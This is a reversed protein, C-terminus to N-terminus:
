HVRYHEVWYNEREEIVSLTEDKTMNQCRADLNELVVWEFADEGHLNWANQFYSSHHENRRLRNKHYKWRRTLVVASGVYSKGTDKHRIAYIAKM